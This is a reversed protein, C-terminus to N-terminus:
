EQWNKLSVRPPACPSGSGAGTYSSSAGAVSALKGGMGAGLPSAHASASPLKGCLSSAGMPRGPSGPAGASPRSGSSGLAAGWGSTARKSGDDPDPGGGGANPDVKTRRLSNSLFMAARLEPDEASASARAQWTSSAGIIPVPLVRCSSPPRARAERKARQRRPSSVTSKISQIISRAREDKYAGSQKAEIKAIFQQGGATMRRVEAKRSAQIRQLRSIEERTERYIPLARIAMALPKVVLVCGIPIVLLQALLTLVRLAGVHDFDAPLLCESESLARTARYPPPPVYPDTGNTPPPPQEAYVAKWYDSNSVDSGYAGGPTYDGDYGCEAASCEMLPDCEPYLARLGDADDDTPCYIRPWAGRKELDVNMLAPPPSLPTHPPYAPPPSGPPRPPASPPPPGAPPPPPTPPPFPWTANPAKPPPPPAPPSLPPPPPLPSAPPGAPPARPPPPSADGGFEWTSAYDIPTPNLPSVGRLPESCNYGGSRDTVFVLPPVAASPPFLGLARGLGQGVTARFDACAYCPRVAANYFPRPVVILVIFFTWTLVDLKALVDLVSYTATRWELEHDAELEEEAPADAPADTAAAAAPANETKRTFKRVFTNMHLAAGISVRRTGTTGDTM